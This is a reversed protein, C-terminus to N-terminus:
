RAPRGGQGGSLPWQKLTPLLDQSRAKCSYAESRPSRYTPLVRWTFFATSQYILRTWWGCYYITLL